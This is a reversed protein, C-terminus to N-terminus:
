GLAASLAQDVGLSNNAQHVSGGAADALQELAPVDVRDGIAVIELQVSTDGHLKKIQAVAQDLSLAGGDNPGDTILVVRSPTGEAAGAAASGYAATISSYTHTAGGYGLQRLIAASTSGDDGVTIDVNNRYPSTAQASLPSSYNWLGVTGGAEGVGIMAKALPERVNDMRTAGGEILGMSGSTDLVFTVQQAGAAGGTSSGPASAPQAEGNEETGGAEPEGTLDAVVKSGTARDDGSAFDVFKDAARQRMEDHVAAAREGTLEPALVAAGGKLRPAEANRFAVPADGLDKVAAAADAPIWVAAPQQPAEVNDAWAAYQGAAEADAMPAVAAEICQDMASPNSSNFEKALGSAAEEASPDAWVTLQYTEGVCEPQAVQESNRNNVVNWGIILAVIAILALLAGWVWGAVTYNSKGSGHRGM